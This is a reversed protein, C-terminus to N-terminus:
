MFSPPAMKLTNNRIPLYRLYNLILEGYNTRYHKHFEDSFFDLIKKSTNNNSGSYYSYIEKLIQKKENLNKSLEYQEFLLNIKNGNTSIIQIPNNNKKVYSREPLTSYTSKSKKNNPIINTEMFTPRQM